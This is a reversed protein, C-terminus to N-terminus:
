SRHAVGPHRTITCQLDHRLWQIAFAVALCAATAGAYIDTDERVDTGPPPAHVSSPRHQRDLRLYYFAACDEDVHNRGRNRSSTRLEAMRTTAYGFPSYSPAPTTRAWASCNTIQRVAGGAELRFFAKSAALADDDILVESVGPRARSAAFRLISAATAIAPSVFVRRGGDSRQTKRRIRGRM